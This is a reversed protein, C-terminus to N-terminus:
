APLTPTCRILHPTGAIVGKLTDPPAPAYVPRVRLMYWAGAVLGAIAVKVNAQALVVTAKSQSTAWPGKWFFRTATFPPSVEVMIVNRVKQLNSVTLEVTPTAPLVPVSQVVTISPLSGVTPADDTVVPAPNIIARLTIYEIIQRGGIYMQRGTQGFVHAAVNWADRLLQTMNNWDAAASQLAERAFNQNVTGPQSPRTRQRAIIQGAPTTFYTTGCISGRIWSWVPSVVKAM